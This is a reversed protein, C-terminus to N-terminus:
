LKQHCVFSITGTLCRIRQLLQMHSQKDSLSLHKKTACDIKTEPQM